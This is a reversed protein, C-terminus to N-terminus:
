DKVLKIDVQFEYGTEKYIAQCIVGSAMQIIESKEFDTGSRKLANEITNSFMQVLETETERDIM